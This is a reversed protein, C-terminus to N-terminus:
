ESESSGTNASPPAVVGDVIAYWSEVHALNTALPDLFPNDESPLDALALAIGAANDSAYWYARLFTEFSGYCLPLRSFFFERWALQHFVLDLLEDVSGVRDRSKFINLHEVLIDALADLEPETCAPLADIDTSQEYSELLSPLLGEWTSIGPVNSMVQQFVPSESPAIDLFELAFMIALDGINESILWAIELVEGCRALDTLLNERWAIQTQSYAVLDDTTEIGAAMDELLQYTPLLNQITELESVTCRRWNGGSPSGLEREIARMVEDPLAKARLENALEGLRLTGHREPESYPIEDEPAGIFYYAFLAAIDGATQSALWAFELADICPPYRTLSDQRWALQANIYGFFDEVTDVDNAIDALAGYAPLLTYSVYEFEADSCDRLTRAPRQDVPEAPPPLADMLAQLAVTGSKRVARYPNVEGDDQLSNVLVLAVFDGILQNALLAIEFSEACLPTTAWYGDRWAIHSQSYVLLDDSTRIDSARHFFATMEVLDAHVADIEATTCPPLGSEQASAAPMFTLAAVCAILIILRM